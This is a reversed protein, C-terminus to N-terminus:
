QDVELWLDLGPVICELTGALFDMLWLTNIIHQGSTGAVCCMYPM